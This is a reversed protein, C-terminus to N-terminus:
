KMLQRIYSCVALLQPNDMSGIINRIVAGLVQTTGAMGLNATQETFFGVKALKLPRLYYYDLGSRTLEVVLDALAGRHQTSNKAKELTTLVELTKARLNESHFFRLSPKPSPSSAKVSPKVRPTAKRKSPPTPSTPV